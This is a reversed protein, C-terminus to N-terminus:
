EMAAELLTSQGNVAALRIAKLKREFRAIRRNVTERAVHLLAAIEGDSLGQKTRLLWAEKERATPLQLM